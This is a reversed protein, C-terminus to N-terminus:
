WNRKALNDKTLIANHEILWLWIKIKLPLKAKWILNYHAGRENRCLHAYTSKVSFIGSNEWSWKPRDKENNVAFSVLVDKLKRHQCQLEENLWRRYSLHWNHSAVQEVTTGTENCIDFLRPFKDKLPSDCVWTDRWFSTQDGRGVIM